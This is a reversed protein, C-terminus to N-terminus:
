CLNKGNTEGKSEFKNHFSCTEHLLGCGSNVMFKCQKCSGDYKEVTEIEKLKKICVFYVISLVTVFVIACGIIVYLSGLEEKIM